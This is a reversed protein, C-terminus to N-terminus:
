PDLVEVVNEVQIELQDAYGQEDKHVLINKIDAELRPVNGKPFGVTFWARTVKPKLIPTGPYRPDKVEKFLRDMWYEKYGRWESTKTGALIAEYCDFQEHRPADPPWWRKLRFIVINKMNGVEEGM